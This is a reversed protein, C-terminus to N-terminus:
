SFFGLPLSLMERHTNEGFRSREQVSERKSVDVLAMIKVDGSWLDGGWLIWERISTENMDCVNNIM